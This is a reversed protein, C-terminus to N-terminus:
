PRASTTPVAPVTVPVTRYAAPRRDDLLHNRPTRRRATEVETLDTDAVLLAEEDIPAPGALPWGDAGVIISAGLFITGREEGIRDACAMVVGNQAATVM